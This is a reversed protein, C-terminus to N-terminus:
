RTPLCSSSRRSGRGAQRRLLSWSGIHHGLIGTPWGLPQNTYRVLVALNVGDGYIREEEQVVDGVNIGIRFEMKRNYTLGANREALERQIEVACNVADVASTFESLINDGPSDV